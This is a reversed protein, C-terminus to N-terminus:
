LHVSLYAVCALGQITLPTPVCFPQVVHTPRVVISRLLLCQLVSLKENCPTSHSSLFLIGSRILVHAIFALDDLSSRSTAFLVPITDLVQHASPLCCAKSAAGSKPFM